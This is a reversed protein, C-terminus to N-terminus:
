IAMKYSASLIIKNSGKQMGKCKSNSAEMVDQEHQQMTSSIDQMGHPRNAAALNRPQATSVGNPYIVKEALSILLVQGYCGPNGHGLSECIEWSTVLRM